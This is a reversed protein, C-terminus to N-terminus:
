QLIPCVRVNTRQAPLEVYRAHGGWGATALEVAVVVGLPNRIRGLKHVRRM